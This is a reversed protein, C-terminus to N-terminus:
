DTTLTNVRSRNEKEEGHLMQIQEKQTLWNQTEMTITHNCNDHQLREEKRNQRQLVKKHQM